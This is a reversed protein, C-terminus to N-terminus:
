TLGRSGGRAGAGEGSGGGGERVHQGPGGGDGALPGARSEELGAPLGPELRLRPAAPGPVAVRPLETLEFLLRGLPVALVVAMCVFLFGVVAVIRRDNRVVAAGGSWWASPPSILLILFIAALCAFITLATMASPYAFEILERSGAGPHAALYSNKAPISWALYVGTGIVTM